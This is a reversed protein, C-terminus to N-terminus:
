LSVSDPNTLTSLPCRELLSVVIPGECICKTMSDDVM